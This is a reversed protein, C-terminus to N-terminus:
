KCSTVQMEKEAVASVAHDRQLSVMSTSLKIDKKLSVVEEHARALAEDRSALKKEHDRNQIRINELENV